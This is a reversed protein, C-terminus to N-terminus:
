QLMIYKMEKEVKTMILKDKYKKQLKSSVQGLTEISLCCRTIHIRNERDLVKCSKKHDRFGLCVRVM